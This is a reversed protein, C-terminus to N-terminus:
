QGDVVRGLPGWLEAAVNTASAGKSWREYIYGIECDDFQEVGLLQMCRALRDLWEDDIQGKTGFAGRM